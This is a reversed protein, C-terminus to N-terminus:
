IGVIERTAVDLALWLWQKNGKDNVFSWIENCQITLRGKKPSLNVTQPV